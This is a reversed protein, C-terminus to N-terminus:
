GFSKVINAVNALFILVGIIILATGTSTDNSSASIGSSSKNDRMFKGKIILFISLIIVVSHIILFPMFEFVVISGSGLTLLQNDNRLIPMKLVIGVTKVFVLISAM